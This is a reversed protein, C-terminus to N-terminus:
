KSLRFDQVTAKAPAAPALSSAVSKGFINTLPVWNTIAVVNTYIIIPGPHNTLPVWNTVAAVNTSVVIKPVVKFTRLQTWPSCQKGNDVARIKWYYTPSNVFGGLGRLKAFTGNQVNGLLTGHLLHDAGDASVVNCVTPSTGVWLDFTLAQNPTEDANAPDPIWELTIENNNGPPHFVIGDPTVLQPTKPRNNPPLSTNRWRKSYQYNCHYTQFVDLRGDGDFDIWEGKNMDYNFGMYNIYPAMNQYQAFGQGNNNLWVGRYTNWYFDLPYPLIGQVALDVFGDANCDGWRISTWSVDPVPFPFPSFVGGGDNRFVRRIANQSGIPSGQGAFAIDFDGDNDMDAWDQQAFAAGPLNVNIDTFTGDHNNRFIAAFPSSYTNTQGMLSIDLYGDNDVDVWFVSGNIVPYPFVAGSDVFHGNGVNRYLKPVGPVPYGAYYAFQGTLLVDTRGDNDYDGCKVDSWNPDGNKVYPLGTGGILTFSSGGNNRWINTSYLIDPYGDNNYDFIDDMWTTNLQM